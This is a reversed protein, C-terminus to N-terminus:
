KRNEAVFDAITGVTRFVRKGDDGDKIKVHYHNEVAVVVELIDISDLELGNDMLSTAETITELGVHRLNVSEVILGKLENVLEAREQMAGSKVAHM